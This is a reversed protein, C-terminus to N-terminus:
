PSVSVVTVEVTWRSVAASAAGPASPVRGTPRASPPVCIATTSPSNAGTGAPPAPSTYPTPGPPASAGGLEPGGFALQPCQGAVQRM